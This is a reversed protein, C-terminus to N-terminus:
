KEAKRDTGLLKRYIEYDTEKFVNFIVEIQSNTKKKYEKVTQIAIEAAKDNPFHFEGTSICCFAISNLASKDALALCSRYCSALLQKDKERLRGAVIPGVTHLVYKCPLNYAPTIKAKGTQEEHGQKKMLESCAARLQVGSFTHIANDICDHCPCFCGLLQSNSANVIGDCRLTTIDGQWLYIGDQLPTLDVIDTIGKQAIEEQLYDNQIRLFEESVSNPMRINFLSRLLNKQEQVHVPIPMDAYRPQENLLSKILYIRKEAQTMDEKVRIVAKQPCVNMCNGCRLCNEQRITAKTASYDICSQPCVAACARCGTCATTIFYGTEKTKAGGFTFSVREIPKKSLDFWEGSGEYLQFVTLAKQSEATPYIENMYPNKEFLRPLLDSGLEKVKGRVSVAVCSMTDEGKMGTLAMYECKKLRDYFGKDKATLFYLGNEDWDMMDMASTVPLENDDMTAVVTTHIEDVIYKLYKSASM